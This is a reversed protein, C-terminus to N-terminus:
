ERSPSATIRLLLSSQHVDHRALPVQEPLLGTRPMAAVAAEVEGSGLPLDSFLAYVRLWGPEHNVALRLPKGVPADVRGTAPAEESLTAPPRPAYWQLARSADVGVLFLYRYGGANSAAFRLQASHPCVADQTGRGAAAALDLARVTEGEVCFARVGASRAPGASGRVQFEEAATGLVPARGDGSVPAESSLRPLIFALALACVAVPVLRMPALLWRVVRDFRREPAEEAAAAALVAREIGAFEVAAPYGVAGPGGAFAREVMARRNYSEQCAPCGALHQRLAEWGAGTLKGAFFAELQRAYTRECAM